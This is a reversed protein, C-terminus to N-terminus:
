CIIQKNTTHPPVVFAKQAGGYRLMYERHTARAEADSSHLLCMWPQGMPKFFLRYGATPMITPDIVRVVTSKSVAM